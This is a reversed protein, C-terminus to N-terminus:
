SRHEIVMRSVSPVPGVINVASTADQETDKHRWRSRTGTAGSKPWRQVVEERDGSGEGDRVRVYRDLHIRFVRPRSHGIRQQPQSDDRDRAEGCKPPGGAGAGVV